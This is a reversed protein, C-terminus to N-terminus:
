LVTSLPSLSATHTLAPFIFITVLDWHTSTIWASRLVPVYFNWFNRKSLCRIKACHQTLRISVIANDCHCCRRCEQGATSPLTSIARMQSDLRLTAASACRAGLCCSPRTKTKHSPERKFDNPFDGNMLFTSCLQYLSAQQVAKQIIFKAKSLKRPM